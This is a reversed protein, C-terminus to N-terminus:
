WPIRMGALMDNGDRKRGRVKLNSLLGLGQPADLLKRPHLSDRLGSSDHAEAQLSEWNAAEALDHGQRCYM